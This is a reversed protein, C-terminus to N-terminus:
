REMNCIQQLDCNKPQKLHNSKELKRKYLSLLGNWILYVDATEELIHCVIFDASMTMSPYVWCCGLVIAIVFFIWRHAQSMAYETAVDEMVIYLSGCYAILVLISTFSGFFLLKYSLRLGTNKKYTTQLHVSQHLVKNLNTLVKCVRSINEAMKKFSNLYFATSIFTIYPITVIVFIDLMTFGLLTIFYEKYVELPNSLHALEMFSYMNYFNAAFIIALYIAYRAYELIPYFKFDNFQQNQAKLPFGLLWRLILLIKRVRFLPSFTVEDKELMTNTLPVITLLGM